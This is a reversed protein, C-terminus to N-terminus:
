AAGQDDGELELRRLQIMRRVLLVEVILAWILLLPLNEPRRESAILVLGIVAVAVAGHVKM